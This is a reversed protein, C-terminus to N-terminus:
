QAAESRVLDILEQSVGSEAWTARGLEAWVERQEPSVEHVTGGAELFAQRAAADAEEWIQRHYAQAEVAAQEFIEKAWDPFSNWQEASTMVVMGFYQWEIETLHDIVEHHRASVMTGFPQAEGDVVQFKLANYVEPWDVTVATGGLAEIGNIETPSRSARLKLGEMDTPSLVPNGATNINRFGFELTMLWHMNVDALEANIADRVAPSDIAAHAQDRNDFIFPLHLVEFARTITVLNAYSGAAFQLLGLQAAEYTEKDSGLQGSPFHQVEIRGDSMEGVLEAFRDIAISTDHNPGIVNALRVTLEQASVPASAASIMTVAGIAAAGLFNRTITKILM